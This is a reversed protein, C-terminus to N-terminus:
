LFFNNLTQVPTESWKQAEPDLIIQASGSVDLWFNLFGKIEVYNSEQSGEFTEKLESRKTKQQKGFYMKAERVINTAVKLLKKSSKVM